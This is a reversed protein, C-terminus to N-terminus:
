TVNMTFNGDYAYNFDFTYNNFYGETDLVFGDDNYYYGSAGCSIDDCGPHILLDVPLQQLDYTSNIRLGIADQWPIIKGGRIHLYADYAKSSWNYYNGGDDESFCREYANSVSCWDGGPIYFNTYNQNLKDSLVSAKLASGLM